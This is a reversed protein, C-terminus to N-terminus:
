TEKIAPAGKRGGPNLGRLTYWFKKIGPTAEWQAAYLDWGGPIQDLVNTTVRGLATDTM